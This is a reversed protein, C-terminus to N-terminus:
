MKPLLPKIENWFNTEFLRASGILAADEKLESLYIRTDVVQSKLSIELFPGFLHYAASVNGGIVLVDAKFRKLWPGLFDGLNTGFEAFVEQAKPDSPVRQAIEKVGALRQNSKEVYRKIFWRTSFWEDALGDNFPLHWVCGYKPVDERDVVPLGNDTFASGFGTGLTISVSKKVNAAKGSWAEGVAFASADNMFRADSVSNLSFINRMYKAVDVGHLNEYKAVEDTFQAIGNAYDFPGPMAFGIGALEHSDICKLSKNIALVWNSLISESSAKNDIHKTDYTEKLIAKKKLDIVACSIHSGGIDAGIAYRKMYM